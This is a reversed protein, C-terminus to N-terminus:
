VGLWPHGYVWLDMSDYVWVGMCENYWVSMSGYVWPDMYGYIWLGLSGYIGLSQGLSRHHIWSNCSRSMGVFLYITVDIQLISMVM